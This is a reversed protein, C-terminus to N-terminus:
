VKGGVIGIRGVDPAPAAAAKAEPPEILESPAARPKNEDRADQRPIFERPDYLPADADPQFDPNVVPPCAHAYPAGGSFDTYVGGCAACKWRQASM